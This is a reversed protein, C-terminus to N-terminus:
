NKINKFELLSVNIKLFTREDINKQSLFTNKKEYCSTTTYSHKVEVCDKLAGSNAVEVSVVPLDLNLYEIEWLM